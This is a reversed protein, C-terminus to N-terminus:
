KWNVRKRWKPSLWKTMYIYIYIHISMAVFMSEVRLSSLPDHNASLGPISKYGLIAYNIPLESILKNRTWSCIHWVLYPILIRPWHFCCLFWVYWEEYVLQSGLPSRSYRFTPLLAYFSIDRIYTSRVQIRHFAFIATEQIRSCQPFSVIFVIFCTRRETRDCLRRLNSTLHSRNRERTHM